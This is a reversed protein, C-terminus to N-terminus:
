GQEELALKMDFEEYPIIVEPFGAAYPAIEYPLLYFLLGERTLVFNEGLDTKQRVIDMANEWYREPAANIMEGFYRAVIERQEEESNGIIDSLVLREGTQLHFTFSERSPMGHAGGEYDYESQLFSIYHDDRYAFGDFSSGFSDGRQEYGEESEGVKQEMYAIRSDVYELMAENIKDAGAFSVDIEPWTINVKYLEREPNTESHRIVQRSLVTGIPNLVEDYITENIITQSGRVEVHAQSTEPTQAEEAQNGTEVQVQLNEGPKEANQGAQSVEGQSVGAENVISAETQGCGALLLMCLGMSVLKGANRKMRCGM